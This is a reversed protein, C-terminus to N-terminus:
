NISVNLVNKLVITRSNDGTKFPKIAIQKKVRAINQKAFDIILFSLFKGKFIPLNINNKINKPIAIKYV